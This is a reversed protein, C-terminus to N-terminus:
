WGVVEQRVRSARPESAWRYTLASGGCSTTSATGPCCRCSSTSCASPCVSLSVSLSTSLCVSLCVHRSLSPLWCSTNADGEPRHGHHHGTRQAGARGDQTEEGAAGVGCTYVGARCSRQHANCCFFFKKRSGCMSIIDEYFLCVFM